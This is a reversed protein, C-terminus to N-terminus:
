SPGSSEISLLVVQVVVTFLLFALVYFTAEQMEDETAGLCRYTVLVALPM